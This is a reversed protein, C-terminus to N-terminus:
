TSAYRRKRAFRAKNTLQYFSKRHRDHVKPNLPGIAVFRVTIRRREHDAIEKRRALRIREVIEDFSRPLCEANRRLPHTLFVAKGAGGRHVLERLDLAVGLTKAVPRLRGDLDDFETLRKNKLPRMM